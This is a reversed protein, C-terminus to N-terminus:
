PQQLAAVLAARAIPVAVRSGEGGEEVMAAVAYRPHAPDKGAFGIFWAHSTGRGTEATGTKGGVTVGPIAVGNAWGQQVSTIMMQLLIADSEPSVARDLTAPAAQQRVEGAPSTVKGVLYPQPLEGGHAITAAILAMQLPTAQMQGQGYSTAAIGNPTQLFAPDGLRSAAVPIGINYDRGFGFHEAYQVLPDTGLFRTALEAFVVNLSWQYGQMLTFLNSPHNAPRCTACDVHYYGGPEVQVRGTDTFVTDPRARGMDIAAALTVTKFTSGPPYLGQTARNLMPLDPRRTPSSVEQWYNIIRRNEATWDDANPNFALGNPDIHPYAALALIAGTQADLVVVAGKRAGLATTAADQIAPVLTLSVDDGIQPRHLLRNEEDVLPNTGESGSLFSDYNAELGALGYINPNYYGALYSMNAVPYTRQVYGTDSYVVRDAIARGTADFIRGRQVRLEQGLLRPNQLTSTGTEIDAADVPRTFTITQGPRILTTERQDVGAATQITESLVRSAAIAPGQIVQQRLMHLSLTLFGALLFGALLQVSRSLEPTPPGGGAARGASAPAPVLSWILYLLCLFVVGLCALWLQDTALLAGAGAVGLALFTLFPRLFSHLASRLM